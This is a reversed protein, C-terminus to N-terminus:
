PKCLRATDRPPKWGASVLAQFLTSTMVRVLTEEFDENHFKKKLGTNIHTMAGSIGLVAHLTEHLLTDQIGDKSFDSQVRIQSSQPDYWAASEEHGEGMEKESCSYVSVVNGGIELRKWLKM